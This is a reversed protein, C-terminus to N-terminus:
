DEAEVTEDGMEEGHGAGAVRAREGQIRSTAPRVPHGQASSM